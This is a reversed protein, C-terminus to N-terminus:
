LTRDSMLTVMVPQMSRTETSLPPAIETGNAFILFGRKAGSNADLLDITQGPLCKNFAHNLIDSMRFHNADNVTSVVLAFSVSLSHEDIRFHIEQPGIVDVEPWQKPEGFADLNEVQLTYGWIEMEAAFASCFRLISAHTDRYENM